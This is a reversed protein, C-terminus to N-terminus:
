KDKKGLAGKLFSSSLLSKTHTSIFTTRNHKQTYADTLNPNGQFILLYNLEQSRKERKVEVGWNNVKEVREGALAVMARFYAM